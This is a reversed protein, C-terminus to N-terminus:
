TMVCVDDLWRLRPRGLSRSGNTEMRINKKSDKFHGNKTHPGVEGGKICPSNRGAQQRSLPKVFPWGLVSRGSRETQSLVDRITAKTQKQLANRLWGNLVTCCPELSTCQAAHTWHLDTEFILRSYFTARFKLALKWSFWNWASLTYM